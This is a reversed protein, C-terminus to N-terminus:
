KIVEFNIDKTTTNGFYDAAFVRLIYEGAPYQSMDLFGESFENGSVKNTVIYKFITEGTPGSKSGISYAFKAAEPSPNRDFSINWSTETLPSRDRNLVQYGLRYVGLRRREPNGDMRDFARVVVRSSGTLKTRAAPMETEVSRWNQDFFEVKEIVPPITDDVGPLILADLANMEDGTPGAIMHVHNMANLTGIVDGAKFETGRRVRVNTIGPDFQFRHDAFPRNSADRGLRIHIYGVTPLRILERLTGFNETSLPNLVKESRLFRAMEGYNGAIDLGNHFRPRSNQDIYEDRIEGLTGAIDRKSKPPDFPWRAPQRSRFEAPDTLKTRVVYEPGDKNLSSGTSIRRVAANDSDAIFVEYNESVAIGSIRNYRAALVPGDAFGRNSRSITQVIPLPSNNISRLANGDGIFLSGDPGSAVTYPRYFAAELLMGDRVDADGSGAVTTVKGFPSILRVRSNMTDAVLISGDKLAAVGCPTDFKAAAGHGEAFGRSSGAFTVVMGDKILKIKDNYTDAVVIGGDDLVALGVPANFRAKAVPGDEDGPEAEGGAIVTVAGASDIKKITHSGTDAVILDGSPHFAIASPTSLGAAFEVPEKGASIRWIKNSLGDSVYIESGEVAIGFPEGIENKLGALTTVATLPRGRSEFFGGANFYLVAFTAAVAILLVGAVVAHVAFRNRKRMSLDNNSPHADSVM